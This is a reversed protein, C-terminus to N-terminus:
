AGEGHRPRLDHFLLLTGDSEERKQKTTDPREHRTERHGAAGSLQLGGDSWQDTEVGDITKQPRGRSWPERRRNSSAILLCVQRRCEMAVPRRM